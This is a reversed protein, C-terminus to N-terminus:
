GKKSVKKLYKQKLRESKKTQEDKFEDLQEAIGSYLDFFANLWANIDPIEDYLKDFTGEGLMVDYGKGLLDKYSELDLSDIDDEDTVEISEVGKEFEEYNKQVEILHEPSSDFFFEHGALVIPFGTREVKIELAKM